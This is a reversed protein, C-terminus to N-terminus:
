KRQKGVPGFEGAIERAADFFEPLGSITNHDCLAVATLEIQEAQAILEAPTFTGDSYTSRTHLEIAAM